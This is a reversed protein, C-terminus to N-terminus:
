RGEDLAGLAKSITGVDKPDLTEALGIRDNRLWSEVDALAREVKKPVPELVELDVEAAMPEPGFLLVRPSLRAKYVEPGERVGEESTVKLTQVTTGLVKYLMVQGDVASRRCVLDGIMPTDM